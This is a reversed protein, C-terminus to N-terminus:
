VSAAYFGAFKRKEINLSFYIVDPVEYFSRHWPLFQMLLGKYKKLHIGGARPWWAGFDVTSSVKHFKLTIEVSSTM